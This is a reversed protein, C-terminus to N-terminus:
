TPPGDDTIEKSYVVMGNLAHAHNEFDRLNVRERGRLFKKGLENCEKLKKRKDESHAYAGYDDLIENGVYLAPDKEALFIPLLIYWDVFPSFVYSEPTIHTEIGTDVKTIDLRDLFEVDLPAFAPDQAYMRVQGLYGIIDLFLVLQWMSRWRHEWDRTFSGIGICVAKKVDWGKGKGGVLEKVQKAVATDKWREQLKRLEVLLSEATISEVIPPLTSHKNPMAGADAKKAANGSVSGRRDIHLNAVGHTVVTWGDEGEVERRKVRGGTNGKGRGNGARRGGM